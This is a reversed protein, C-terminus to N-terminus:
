KTLMAMAAQAIQEGHVNCQVMGNRDVLLVTPYGDVGMAQAWEPSLLQIGGLHNHKVFNKWAKEDDDVSAGVWVFDGGKAREWLLQLVPASEVCPPCWTAWFDLLVVKGRLDRLRIERGHVDKGILDPLPKGVPSNLAAVMARDALTISTTAEKDNRRYVLEIADGVNKDTLVGALAALNEIPKGDISVFVDDTQLGAKKAPSNKTVSTVRNGDMAVGLFPRSGSTPEMTDAGSCAQPTVGTDIAWPDDSGPALQLPIAQVRDGHDLDFMNNQYIGGLTMGWAHFYAGPKPGDPTQDADDETFNWAGLGGVAGAGLTRAFAVQQFGETAKAYDKGDADLWKALDARTHEFVRVGRKKYEDITLRDCKALKEGHEADKDTLMYLLAAKGATPTEAHAAPAMACVALGMATATPMCRTSRSLTTATRKM